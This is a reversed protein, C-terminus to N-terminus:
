KTIKTRFCAVDQTIHPLCNSAQLQLALSTIVEADTKRVDGLKLDRSFGAGRCHFDLARRKDRDTLARSRTRM